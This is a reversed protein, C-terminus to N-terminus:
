ALILNLYSELLMNPGTIRVKGLFALLKLNKTSEDSSLWFESNDDSAIAFM